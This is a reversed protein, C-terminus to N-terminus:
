YNLCFLSRTFWLYSFVKLVETFLNSEDKIGLILIRILSNVSIINNNKASNISDNIKIQSLWGILIPIVIIACVKITAM